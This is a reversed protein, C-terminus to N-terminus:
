FRVSHEAVAPLARDQYKLKLPLEFCGIPMGSLDM